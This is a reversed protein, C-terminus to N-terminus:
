SLGYKYPKLKFIGKKSRILSYCEWGNDEIWLYSFWPNGGQLDVKICKLVRTQKTFDDASIFIHKKM